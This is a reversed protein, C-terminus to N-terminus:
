NSIYDNIINYTERLYVDKKLNDMEKNIISNLLEDMKMIDSNDKNPMIVLSPDNVSLATDIISDILKNSQLINYYSFPYLPISNRKNMARVTDTLSKMRKFQNDKKIRASSLDACINIKNDPLAEIKVKKDINDNPLANAYEMEGLAIDSWLDPIPIHPVVGIKQHTAGQLDYMKEVTIKIFGNKEDYLKGTNFLTYSTDLPIIVQATAKGFSNSGVIVARQQMKLMQALLESASASGKNIMIVLPGDYILGRNMDKVVKPKQNRVKRLFLPGEDIFIGALDVAEDVSGGGNNRLDIILGQINEKKLKIIEKAVDNACGLPVNKSFDTYFSPLSIYGIPYKKSLIYSNVVNDDSKVAAKALYIEVLEGNKKLVTISMEKESAKYILDNFEDIDYDGVDIVPRNKFKVKIVQDGVNLNNCKWAPSGPAISAVEIHENKNVDCSFGYIEVTASLSEKFHKNAVPTFYDSHPDCTYIMAELLNEELYNSLGNPYNTKKRIGKRLKNIAKVKLDDNKEFEFDKNLKNALELEGLTYLKIWKEIKHTKENLNKSYNDKYSESFSLSDNKNWVFKKATCSNIISDTQKLRKEYVSLLYNYSKCFLEKPDSERNQIDKLAVIDTSYLNLYEGDISLLYNEIAKAAFAKDIAPPQFHLKNILYLLKEIKECPKAEEVTFSLLSFSFITISVFLFCYKFRLSTFAIKIYKVM